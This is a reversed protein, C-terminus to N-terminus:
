ETASGPPLFFPTRGGGGSIKKATCFPLFKPWAVKLNKQIAVGGGRFKKRSGGSTKNLRKKVTKERISKTSM